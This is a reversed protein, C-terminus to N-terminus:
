AEKLPMNSFVEELKGAIEGGLEDAMEKMHKRIVQMIDEESQGSTEQIVFEPAVSVNVQIPTAAAASNENEAYVTGSDYTRNASENYNFSSNVAGEVYGGAAHASVGLATGAQEYLELARTRRSPNTPIVFEGYGEEALWSLQPGGSVFGGAAHASVRQNSIAPFTSGASFSPTLSPLTTQGDGTANKGTNGSSGMNPFYGSGEMSPVTFDSSMNYNPNITINATVSFPDAFATDLSTQASTRLQSSGTLISNSAGATLSNGYATGANLFVNEFTADQLIQDINQKYNEHLANAVSKPISQATSKLLQSVATQTETDLNDLGFWKTVNADTWKTADPEIALAKNMAEKLRESVDGELDPLIDDLKGKYADSIADLQFDAVRDQLDKMQSNYGDAIKQYLEDYTKQDIAGEDLQLQLNELSINLSSDYSESLANVNNQLEEQMQTFSGIDLAAGSYKIKLAAFSSEEKAATVKETIRTIKEQLAIIEQQEDFEIVGDAMAAKMKINLKKDYKNIKNQLKEYGSGLGGTMDESDKGVLLNLAVTAEYHQNNLYDKANEVFSSIMEKYIEKDEKSLKTSIGMEWNMKELERTVSQLSYLSDESQQVAETFKTLGKVQKDFVIDSAVEQIEKLSLTIDGFHSSMNNSVAEQFMAALKEASVGTDNMAESLAETKFHIDDIDRGTAEYVKQAREMEKQMEEVNKQYDKKIKNGAIWSGIAGVGAGILAGPVAGVGGFAAGIAAGAKAGVGAGAVTGVVEVAGAKKYAKAKEKDDSTFGTYLDMGGHILGAAGAIGGAVSGAGILAATGGSMAGTMAGTMNNSVMRAMSRERTLGYGINAFSGLLGSGGVMVNGTAGIISGAMSTGTEANTGFLGRGVSAAGRGMSILPSAIKGLLIASFVSSIGAKEGGPLLKGASSLLNKFGQWLKESVAEFDFGESFGKAFSAGISAGEDITEEIDIGLLTMVGIKLGTGIGKGIDQALDAFRAKGTTNWWESFPEAIFEDWAIKVKGFFDAHQWEKTSSVEKFKRQMRDIRVDLWDMFEELGQEIVPMQATLWEALNKIYPSLRKGFSLKVGDAASQLLTISGQLNDMMIESMQGAAGDANNIAKSLKNYDETTANLIALFGKQAYTGAITNGLNAKQKDTFSATAERLEKMVDSFDRASGDANFFEIGLKKLADTAGNTNTSLRTFVSNLATGAMNGKIGANAMLGTALAVDEISYKLTGAMAGAYKFTEGMMSVNTNANSSAAAMVDSFHGADSAKMGFATLADTVIDSTTALSEGSAAALNLIGEIGGMMDETKWGAMAMYNFAEASETATFKTTAGMEKAKNTLKTLESGTAGSIAQVQSMAAEFNKYTDITDKLGISVGLVAGVQFVPNKLLNIIGRVPSTILDVAKMTVSWTKGAFSKVGRGITSLIPAIRDKAELFIEYKQKTWRALSKETKEAQRDFQSVKRGTEQTSNGAKEAAESMKGMKKILNSVEPETKDIAEIPIEIRLTEAM